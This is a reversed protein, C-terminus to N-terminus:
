IIRSAFRRSIFFTTTVMVMLLVSYACAPGIGASRWEMYVQVAIPLNAPMFVLVSAVFEGLCSAFVLALAAALSPALLPIVIRVFCMWPSAGLSRGAEILTADFQTVSATVIRTFLPINRVFYAIPLLYVTGYLPLWDDNFAKILNIGIVTGPLAWPIMVLINLWRSGSRNRGIIYATPLGIVLVAVAASMSVWLSNRIPTWSAPNTFLESFNGLTFASPIIETAWQRHDVFALYVITAHPMLLLGISGWAAVGALLRGGKSKLMRPTGKSASGTPANRGRFMIVGLLSIMALVVTLTLAVSEKSNVQATYIAVSLYPFDNGFFLPASFSAGSTMFTLLAAGLLAPKLMPLTVYWFVRWRSAGLTRAAEIQSVDMGELAVSVMAYFFVYFSYVHIVLIAIPGQFSPEAGGFWHQLTRPIFGGIGILYYFSLTGVLPPLAFPLLAMASLPGRGPFSYRTVLFALLTGVIGALAVSLFCIVITNRFAEFGIGQTVASWDWNRLAEFILRTTPYLVVVALATVAIALLFNDFRARRELLSIKM